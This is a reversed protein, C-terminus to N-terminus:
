FQNLMIALFSIGSMIAPFLVSFNTGAYSKANNPEVYLVDNPQLYFYSSSFISDDTLNLRHMQKQGNEERILLVNKRKGSATLDGALAVAEIINVSENTIVLNGPRNVEGLVSIRFNLYRVTVLPNKVYPLLLQTIEEGLAQTTKGAAALRGIKPLEITGEQNVMIGSTSNAAGGGSASASNFNAATQPDDGRVGIYLLDSKQILPQVNKTPLTFVTDNSNRFYALRKNSICSSLGSLLLFALGFLWFLRPSSSFIPKRLNHIQVIM